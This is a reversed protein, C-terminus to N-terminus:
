QGFFYAAAILIIALVVLVIMIAFVMILSDKGGFRGANLEGIREADAEQANIQSENWQEVFMAKIAVIDVIGFTEKLEPLTALKEVLQLAILGYLSALIAKGRYGVWIPVRAGRLLLRRNALQSIYNAVAVTAKIDKGDSVNIDEQDFERPRPLAGTWHEKTKGKKKTQLIGEPGSFPADKVDAYGDDGGLLVLPRKKRAARRIDKSELPTLWHEWVFWIAGLAVAVIVAIVLLIIALQYDAILQRIAQQEATL